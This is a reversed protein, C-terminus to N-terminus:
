DPNISREEIESQAFLTSDSDVTGTRNHIASHLQSIRAHVQDLERSMVGTHLAFHHRMNKELREIHLRNRWIVWLGVTITAAVNPWVPQYFDQYVWHYLFHGM